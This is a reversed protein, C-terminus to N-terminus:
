EPAELKRHGRLHHRRPRRRLGFKFKRELRATRLLARSLLRVFERRTRRQMTDAILVIQLACRDQECAIGAFVDRSLYKGDVTTRRSDQRSGLDLYEGPGHFPLPRRKFM